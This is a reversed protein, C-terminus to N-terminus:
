ICATFHLLASLGDEGGPRDLQSSSGNISRRYIPDRRRRMGVTHRMMCAYAALRFLEVRGVSRGATGSLALTTHLDPRRRVFSGPLKRV